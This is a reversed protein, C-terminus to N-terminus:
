KALDSLSSVKGQWKKLAARESLSGGLSGGAAEGLAAGGAAGLPGLVSGMGAGATAGVKGMARSMLGRKLANAAQAAAGPYSQDVRLIKGASRLDQIDNLLEPQDAFASQLKASNAKIVKEVGPANWQGQTSSGADHIKNALHAKIEAKAAQAIPQIEEPMADLTKIVQDFQAPPLRTLTDPIKDFSTTRNIPTQPDHEMLKNIGSPNDLTQNKMQVLARAPGYIDEGAGKLVDEDLANKIKGIAHKNDNTWIQNLWKRVDEVGAVNFGEPSQKRFEGLQNEISTLLHGQDKALLTNRFQPDQLLADVGELKTIPAGQARQDAAGYLAKRQKDFWESFADFPQAITQGRANISDEDTGLTGGTKKVISESHKALAAREADFQAKAAAGAPEDFRSLQYDTAAAKADGSLASDRAKELGVRQLIQARANHATDPLGGEVPETDVKVGPSGPVDAPEFPPPREAATPTLALPPASAATPAAAPVESAAPARFGSVPTGKLPEMGGRLSTLALAGQLVGTTAGAAYPGLQEGMVDSAKSILTGPLNLPNANREIFGRVGPRMSSGEWAKALSQSLADQPQYTHERIFRKAREDAQAITQGTALDYMARGGAIATAGLGTLSRLALDGGAEKLTRGYTPKPAEPAAASEGGSFLFDHTPDGSSEAGSGGSSLFDLTPDSV